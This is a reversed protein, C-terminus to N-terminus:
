PLRGVTGPAGGLATDALSTGAVVLLAVDMAAVVLVLRFAQRARQPRERAALVGAAAAVAMAPPAARILRNKGDLGRTLSGTAVLLLGATAELGHRYGLRHPMGSVGSSADADLDPLVNAVHAAVGLTSGALVLWGPVRRHPPVALVAAAPFAGFGTAYPLWSWTSSKLGANYAWGSAVAALHAAGARRGLALSLPVTLAAATAAGGAVTRRRLVGTAVPKDSRGVARDRAADLADNSWGISLQGALVALAVRAARRPGAGAAVALGTLTATVAATPLPHCAAIM